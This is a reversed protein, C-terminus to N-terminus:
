LNIGFRVLDGSIRFSGGGTVFGAVPDYVTVVDEYHTAQYYTSTLTSQVVYVNVPLAAPNTCTFNRTTAYGTGTTGTANCTLAYVSGPGVPLGAARLARAFGVVNDALHGTPPNLHDITTM